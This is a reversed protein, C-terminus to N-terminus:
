QGIDRAKNREEFILKWIRAHRGTLRFEGEPMAEQLMDPVHEAAWTCIKRLALGVKQHDNPHYAARLHTIRGRKVMMQTEPYSVTGVGAQLMWDNSEVLDFTVIDGEVTFNSVTAQLHNEQDWEAIDRVATIGNFSSVDVIEFHIDPAYLSLVTEIGGRNYAAWFAKVVDIADM